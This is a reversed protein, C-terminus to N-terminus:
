QGDSSLQDPRHEKSFFAKLDRAMESLIKEETYMMHGGAYDKRSIRSYISAPADLHDLAYQTGFYPTALDFLGSAVFVRLDQNKVLVESLDATVSPFGAAASGFNWPSVDTLVTYKEKRKVGLEKELYDNMVATYVGLIAEFSPDYNAKLTAKKLSPGKIRSDFRGITLEEKELLEKRFVASSLRLDMKELFLPDIGILSGMKKAMRSKEDAPLRRGLLLAHALDGLAFSEAERLVEHLPRNEELKDHFWATAAYSPFYLLYPLDHCDQSECFTQFQLASSILVLGNLYIYDHDHLRLALGCARTTGYSEGVLYKPDDWREFESLFRHIFLAISEIDEQLGHFQKPDEGNSARSFGTSIPDIFVLDAESLLTDPNDDYSYPPVISGDLALHVKKPGLLGMHLWASSSGPGGNFCFAIAKKEKPKRDAVYAVFFLAGKEKNEKDVLPLTGQIAKYDITKDSIAISHRSIEYSAEKATKIESVDEKVPDSYLHQCLLFTLIIISRM